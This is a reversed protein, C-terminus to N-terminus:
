LKFESCTVADCSFGHSFDVRENHQQENEREARKRKPAFSLEDTIGAVVIAADGKCLQTIDPRSIFVALVDLTQRYVFRAIGIRAKRGISLPDGKGAVAVPVQIDKDNWRAAACRLLQGVV